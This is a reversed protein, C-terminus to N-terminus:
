DVTLVKSIRRIGTYRGEQLKSSSLRYTPMGYLDFNCASKMGRLGSPVSRFIQQQGSAPTEPERTGATSEM